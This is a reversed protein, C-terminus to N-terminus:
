VFCRLLVTKDEELRGNNEMQKTQAEFAAAREYGRLGTVLM